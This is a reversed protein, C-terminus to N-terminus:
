SEEEEIFAVTHPLKSNKNEEIFTNNDHQENNDKSKVDEDNSDKIFTTQNNPLNKQPSEFFIDEGDELLVKNFEFSEPLEVVDNTAYSCALIASENHCLQM